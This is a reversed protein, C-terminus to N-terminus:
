ESRSQTSFTNNQEATREGRSWGTSRQRAFEQSASCVQSSLWVQLARADLPKCLFLAAGARCAKVEDEMSYSDSCIIVPVRGLRDRLMELLECGCMDPLRSNIIWVLDHAESPMRLASRGNPLLCTDPKPSPLADFLPQFGTPDRDVVVMRGSPEPSRIM